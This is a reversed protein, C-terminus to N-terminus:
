KKKSKYVRHTPQKKKLIEDVKKELRKATADAQRQMNHYKKVETVLSNLGSTKIMELILKQQKDDIKESLTKEVFDTISRYDLLPNHPHTQLLNDIKFWIQKDIWVQKRAKKM